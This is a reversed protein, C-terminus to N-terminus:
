SVRVPAHTAFRMRRGRIRNSEQLGIVFSSRAAERRLGSASVSGDPFALAAAVNLRLPTEKDVSALSRLSARMVRGRM